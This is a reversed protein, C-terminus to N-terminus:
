PRARATRGARRRHRHPSRPRACRAASHRTSGRPLRSRRWRHVSRSPTRPCLVRASSSVARASPCIVPLSDSGGPLRIRRRRHVGQPQRPRDLCTRHFGVGVRGACRRRVATRATGSTRPGTSPTATSCRNTTSACRYRCTTGRESRLGEPDVFKFMVTAPRRAHELRPRRRPRACRQGRRVCGFALRLARARSRHSSTRVAPRTREVDVAIYAPWGRLRTVRRDPARRRAGVPRWFSRLTAAITELVRRCRCARARRPESRPARAADGAAVRQTAVARRLRARIGTPARDSQASVSDAEHM